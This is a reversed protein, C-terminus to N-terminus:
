GVGKRQHGFGYECNSGVGKQRAPISDCADNNLQHRLEGLIKVDAQQDRIVQAIARLPIVDRVMQKRKKGDQTDFTGTQWEDGRRDDISRQVPYIEQPRM